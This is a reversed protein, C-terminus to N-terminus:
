GIYNKQESTLPRDIRGMDSNKGTGVYEFTIGMKDNLLKQANPLLGFVGISGTITTPEALIKLAPTAIYYGGSSAVDSM